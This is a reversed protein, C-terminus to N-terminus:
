ALNAKLFVALVVSLNRGTMAALKLPSNQHHPFTCFATRARKAVVGLALMSKCTSTKDRSYFASPRAVKAFTYHEFCLRLDSMLLVLLPSNPGRYSRELLLCLIYTPIHNPLLRASGFAKLTM